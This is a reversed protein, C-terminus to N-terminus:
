KFIIEVKDEYLIVDRDVSVNKHKSSKIRSTIYLAEKYADEVNDEFVLIKSPYNTLEIITYNGCVKAKKLYKM